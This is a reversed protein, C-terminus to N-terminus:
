TGNKPGMNTGSRPEMKPDWIPEMKPNWKQFGNKFDMKSIWKQNGVAPFYYQSMPHILANELFASTGGHGISSGLCVGENDQPHRSTCITSSLLQLRRLMVMRQRIKTQKKKRGFSGFKQM